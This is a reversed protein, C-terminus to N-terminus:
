RSGAGSESARARVSRSPGTAQANGRRVDCFAFGGRHVVRGVECGIPVDFIPGAHVFTHFEGNEGCHDVGGPLERLFRRDFRRGALASDLKRPDVCVM